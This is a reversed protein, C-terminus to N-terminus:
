LPNCVLYNEHADILDVDDNTRLDPFYGQRYLRYLLFGTHLGLVIPLLGLLFLQEPQMISFLSVLYNQQPGRKIGTAAIGIILWCLPM